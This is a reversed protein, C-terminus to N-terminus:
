DEFLFHQLAAINKEGNPGAIVTDSTDLPLMMQSIPYSKFQLAQLSLEILTKNPLNTRMLPLVKRMLSDIQAPSKKKLKSILNMIVNRQRATRKYDTDIWRIRAYVLTEEGNLHNAGVKFSGTPFAQYMYEVESSSLSVDAGGCYDVAKKFGNFNIVLYNELNLHFNENITQLLLPMGGWSYSYNLMTNGHGQISVNLNRALSVMHIKQTRKNISLIIMSDSRGEFGNGRTDAGVLLISFVDPGELLSPQTPTTPASTPTSPVPTPEATSESTSPAPTPTEGGTPNTDPAGSETSVPSSGSSPTNDPTDQGLTQTAETANGHVIPAQDESNLLDSEAINPDGTIATRDLLNFISNMYVVGAIGIVLVLTVLTSVLILLPKKAKM